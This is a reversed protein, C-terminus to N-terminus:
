RNNYKKGQWTDLEELRKELLNLFQDNRISGWGPGALFRPPVEGAFREIVINPNLRELFKVIFDLYEELSFMEFNEPNNKYEDAFPTNKIIQLQHFKINNLPLKSIIEAQKLMEERSEGPLGFILHAGTRIGMASTAKIADKSQEFSHGRRIRELTKNYCSEIGYEIIVYYEKSLENFYELKQDDVCDPRTGIVLGIVEKRNLAQEYLRKLEDLPKYTNSYAQFYALFKDARRYRNAHFEIGEQIQEKISKSSHCYSPNFADNNCYTCGGVGLTGDRNPCTFGADITLKQVREGFQKKFYQAYANFRRNHQWPYQM